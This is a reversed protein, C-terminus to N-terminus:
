LRRYFFSPVNPQWPHPPRDRSLTHDARLRGPILGARTRTAPSATDDCMASVLTLASMRTKHRRLLPFITTAHICRM